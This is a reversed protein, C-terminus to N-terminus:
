VSDEARLADIPECCVAPNGFTSGGGLDTLRESTLDNLSKKDPALKPWWQGLAIVTQPAADESVIAQRVLSGYRSRIRVMSENQIGVSEADQPHLMIRPQGGSMRRLSDLNGMSTNIIYAGPPSILRWPFESDLQEDFELQQPPPSFVIKRDSHHSGNAYPLFPNPLKLKISKTEKLREFTIGELWPHDSKLMSAALQNADWDLTPEALGLRKALEAFVWTNPRCEGRPEVVPEAWQLYYHGYSTYLDPHELFTTAPLLYDAYDATDTQFHELVVTFLDERSLGQRVRSSDPAVAAPNSNFVFLGKIPAQQQALESALCNMNVRRVNEKILRTGGCKETNLVFGGSTSMAAGGGRHTWSGLLAPLLTIARIANGGGENRTMGYGVKIFNPQTTAYLETVRAVREPDLGCFSATSKLEWDAVAQRYDELGSAHNALYSKDEWGRKLIEGGMALALAADTGVKIQWHEDAFRSTENHFPDIHLIYAGRKRAEKLWPTLHSNSRLVNIGWLIIVRSEPLDELDVSLKGPGYNAEWAAGGTSACITQELELAGLTRFFTLPHNGQIKGMTGAYCYPLISQPGATKLIEQLREAVADLAEEWSIAEFRGEGKKGVRKQPTLLRDPHEQREPYRAMKVCAFGRTVPHDPAGELKTVRGDEVTLRISCCDPCDLACISPHITPLPKGM